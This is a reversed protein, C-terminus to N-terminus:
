INCELWGLVKRAHMNGWGRYTAHNVDTTAFLTFSEWSIFFYQCAKGKSRSLIAGSVQIHGGIAKM